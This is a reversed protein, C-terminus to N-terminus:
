GVSDFFSAARKRWELECPEDTEDLQIGHELPTKTGPRVTVFTTYGEAHLEGTYENKMCVYMTLSTRGTRVVISEYSIIDGPEVSRVFNFQHTNKYLIGQKEGHELCAAIFSSEIMWEIGRGAYLNEHHNLDEMRVMHISKYKKM